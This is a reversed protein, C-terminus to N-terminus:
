QEIQIAEIAQRFEEEAQDEGSPAGSMGILFMFAGRPVLWIRTLVKLAQGRATQLTYTARLHAAPLGSVRAPRIPTVFAFDPFGRQMQTVATKLLAVPAQGALSGSPRLTIQITPNLGTYPEPHKMFVFLPATARTQLAVQLDADSLRVKGRNAEVEQLSATRWGPPRAIAIGATANEFREQTYAPPALLAIVLLLIRMAKM